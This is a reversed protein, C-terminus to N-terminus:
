LYFDNLLWENKAFSRHQSEQTVVMKSLKWAKEFTVFGQPYGGWSIQTLNDHVYDISLLVLLTQFGKVM